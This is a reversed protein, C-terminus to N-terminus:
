NKCRHIVICGNKVEIKNSTKTDSNTPNNVVFDHIIEAYDPLDVMKTQKQIDIFLAKMYDEKNVDVFTNKAM